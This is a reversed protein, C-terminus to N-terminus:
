YGPDRRVSYRFPVGGITWMFEVDVSGPDPELHVGLPLTVYHYLSGGGNTAFRGHAFLSGQRVQWHLDTGEPFYNYGVRLDTGNSLQVEFINVDVLEGEVPAVSQQVLEDPVPFAAAVEEPTIAEEIVGIQAEAPVVVPVDLPEETPPPAEGPQQASRRRLLVVLAVVIALIVLAAVIALWKANSEGKAPVAAGPPTMSIEAAWAGTNDALRNDNVGLSLTGASPARFTKGSGIQFPPADGIKGILSWCQLDPAPFPRTRGERQKIADCAATGLGAPAVANIPAPGFHVLGTARISISDGARVDIGTSTWPSSSAVQVKVPASAAQLASAPVAVAGLIILAV